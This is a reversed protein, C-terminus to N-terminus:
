HADARASAAPDRDAEGGGLRRGPGVVRPPGLRVQTGTADAAVLHGDYPFALVVEQGEGDEAPRLTVNPVDELARLTDM